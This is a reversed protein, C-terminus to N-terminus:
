LLSRKHSMNCLSVKISLLGHDTQTWNPSLLAALTKDPSTQGMIVAQLHKIMTEKMGKQQKQPAKERIDRVEQEVVSGKVHKGMKVISFM